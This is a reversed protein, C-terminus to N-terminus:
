RRVDLRDGPAVGLLEALHLVREAPEDGMAVNAQQHEARFDALAGRMGDPERDLLDDALEVDLPVDEVGLRHRSSLGFRQSGHARHGVQVQHRPM